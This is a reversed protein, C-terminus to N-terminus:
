LKSDKDVASVLRKTSSAAIPHTADTLFFDPEHKIKNTWIAQIILAHLFKLLQVNAPKVWMIINKIQTLWSLVFQCFSAFECKVSTIKLISYRDTGLLVYLCKKFWGSTFSFEASAVLRQNACEITQTIAVTKTKQCESDFVFTLLNVDTKWADTRNKIM